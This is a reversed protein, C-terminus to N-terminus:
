YTKIIENINTEIKNRVEYLKNVLEAYISQQISSEVASNANIFCETEIAEIASLIENVTRM